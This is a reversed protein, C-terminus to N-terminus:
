DSARLKKLNTLYRTPNKHRSKEADVWVKGFEVLAAGLPFVLGMGAALALPAGSITAALSGIPASLASQPSFVVSLSKQATEFGWLRCVRENEEMLSSLKDSIYGSDKGIFNESFFIRLDRLAERSKKDERFEIIHQWSAKEVDVLAINSISSAFLQAPNNIEDEDFEINESVWTPCGEFGSVKILNEIFGHIIERQDSWSNGETVNNDLLRVDLGTSRHIYDLDKFAGELSSIGDKRLKGNELDFTTAMLLNLAGYAAYNDVVNDDGPMLSKLVKYSLERDQTPVSGTNRFDRVNRMFSAAFDFPFVREFYLSAEKPSWIGIVDKM